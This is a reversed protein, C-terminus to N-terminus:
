LSLRYGTRHLLGQDEDDVPIVIETGLAAHLGRHYAYVGTGLCSRSKTHGIGLIGIDVTKERRDLHIVIQLIVAPGDLDGEKATVLLYSM